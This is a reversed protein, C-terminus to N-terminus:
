LLTLWFRELMALGYNRAIASATTPKLFAGMRGSILPHGLRTTVVSHPSRPSCERVRLRREDIREAPAHSVLEQVSLDEVRNQLRRPGPLGERRAIISQSSGGLKRRKPRACARWPLHFPWALIGVAVRDQCVDLRDHLRTRPLKHSAVYYLAPRVVRLVPVSLTCKRSCWALDRTNYLLQVSIM